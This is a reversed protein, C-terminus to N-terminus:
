AGEENLFHIDQGGKRLPKAIIRFSCLPLLLRIFEKVAKHVPKILIASKMCPIGTRATSNSRPM